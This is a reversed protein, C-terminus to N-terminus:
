PTPSDARTAGHFDAVIPIRAILGAYRAALSYAAEEDPTNLLFSGNQRTVLYIWREGTPHDTPVIYESKGDATILTGAYTPRGRKIWQDETLHEYNTM